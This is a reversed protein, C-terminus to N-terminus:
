EEEAEEEDLEEEEDDDEFQGRFFYDIIEDTIAKITMDCAEALDEVLDYNEESVKVAKGM